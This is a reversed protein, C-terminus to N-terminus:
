RPTSVTDFLLIDADHSSGDVAGSTNQSRAFSGLDNILESEMLEIGANLVATSSRLRIPMIKIYLQSSAVTDLNNIPADKTVWTDPNESM